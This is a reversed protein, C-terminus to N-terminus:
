YNKKGKCVLDHLNEKLSFIKRHFEMLFLLSFQLNLYKVIDTTTFLKTFVRNMM